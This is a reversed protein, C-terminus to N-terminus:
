VGTVHLFENWVRIDSVPIWLLGSLYARAYKAENTSGWELSFHTKVKQSNHGKLVRATLKTESKKKFNANAESDRYRASPATTCHSRQQDGKRNSFLFVWLVDGLM